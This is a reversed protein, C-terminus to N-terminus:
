KQIVQQGKYFGCTKCVIHPIKVAGCNTCRGAVPLSLRIAERRKGKRAVSHRRKPEHAM